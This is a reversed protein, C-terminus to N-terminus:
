ELKLTFKPKHGFWPCFFLFLFYPACSIDLYFHWKKFCYSLLTYLEKFSQM